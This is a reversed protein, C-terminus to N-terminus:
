LSPPLPTAAALWTLAPGLTRGARPVVAHAVGPLMPSTLLGLLFWNLSLLAVADGAGARRRRLRSVSCMSVAVVAFLGALLPLCPADASWAVAGVALSMGLSFLSRRRAVATALAASSSVPSAAETTTLALVSAPEARKAAAAAAAADEEGRGRNAPKEDPESARNGGGSGHRAAAQGALKDWKSKGKHENLRMNEQRLAQTELVHIRALADDHEDEMEDLVAALAEQDRLAARLRDELATNEWALDDMQAQMEAVLRGLKRERDVATLMRLPFALFTVAWVMAECCLLAPLQLLRRLARACTALLFCCCSWALEM